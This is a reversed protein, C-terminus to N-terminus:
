KKRLMARFHKFVEILTIIVIAALGIKLGLGVGTEIGTVEEETIGPISSFNWLGPTLALIAFIGIGALDLGISLLRTITSWRRKVFLFLNLLLSMGLIINIWMIYPSLISYDIFVFTKEGYIEPIIDEHNIFAMFVMIFISEFVLDSIKIQETDEPPSELSDVSWLEEKDLLPFESDDGHKEVLYFIITVIGVMILTANWLGLGFSIISQLLDGDVLFKIISVVLLGISIGMLAVKIVLLYIDIYQPGIIYRPKDMYSEAVRKPNGMKYLANKIEDDTYDKNGYTEELYDYINAEIDRLIDNRQSVPLYKGITYLYNKIM